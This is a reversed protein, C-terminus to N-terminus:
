ERLDLHRDFWRHVEGDIRREFALLAADGGALRQVPDHRVEDEAGARDVARDDVGQDLRRVLVPQAADREFIRDAGEGIALHQDANGHEAAQCM